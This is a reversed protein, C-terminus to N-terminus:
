RLVYALCTSTLYRMVGDDKSLSRAQGSCLPADDEGREMERVTKGEARTSGEVVSGSAIM